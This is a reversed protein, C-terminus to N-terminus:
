IDFVSAEGQEPISLLVAVTQNSRHDQHKKKKASV